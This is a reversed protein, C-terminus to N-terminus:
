RLLIMIERVDSNTQRQGQKLADIGEEIGGLRERIDAISEGVQEKVESTQQYAELKAAYFGSTVSVIVTGVMMLTAASLKIEGKQLFIPM